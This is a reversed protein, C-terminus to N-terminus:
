LAALAQKRLRKKVMKQKLPPLRDIFLVGNLHDIEHQICISKLEDAELIQRQGRLDQYELVIKDARTVEGRFDVVSLCGEEFVTEGTKEIIKPNIFILPEPPLELDGSNLDVVVVRKLIGVQTAALGLGKSEYMTYFMDECFSALAEDFQQVELAPQKLIPDPFTYIKLLSAM